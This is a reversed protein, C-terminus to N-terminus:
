RLVKIYEGLAERNSGVVVRRRGQRDEELLGAAEIVEGVKAQGLYTATFSVVADIEPHDLQLQGPYDFGLSDDVVKARIKVPGIKHYVQASEFVDNLLSLDFKRRNFMAKNYKRQEHWVYEDFGFDCARRRYSALWDERSLDQCHNAAIAAQVVQRARHFQERQYCVLDIDSQRNQMGVLLSGTIGFGALNLGNDQLLRCLGQLDRVVPDDSEAQLLDQLVTQPRFHRQVEHEAVAHLDADLRASHFLFEPHSHALLGNASDSALKRWCGAQLAYRLFCLIRGHELGDAVVAFLLGDRVKIFDKARYHM